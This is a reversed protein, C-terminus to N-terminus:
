SCPSASQGAAVSPEAPTTGTMVSLVRRAGGPAHALVCLRQKCSNTYATRCPLCGKTRAHTADTAAIASTAKARFSGDTHTCGVHLSISAVAMGALQLLQSGVHLDCCRHTHRDAPHPSAALTLLSPRLAQMELLLPQVRRLLTNGVIDGKPLGGAAPRPSSM